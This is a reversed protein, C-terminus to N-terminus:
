SEAEEEGTIERLAYRLMGLYERLEEVFVKKNLEYEDVHILFPEVLESFRWFGARGLRPLLGRVDRLVSLFIGQRWFGLPRM